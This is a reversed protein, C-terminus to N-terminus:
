LSYVFWGEERFKDLTRELEKKENLRKKILEILKRM